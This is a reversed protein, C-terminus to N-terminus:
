ITLSPLLANIKDLTLIIEEPTTFRSLSFRLSSRALHPDIGMHLLTPSLQSVGSTCASGLSVAISAQDLQAFLAEGDLHPFALNTTNSLRPGTGNVHLNPFINRLGNELQNLLLAMKEAAAPLIDDLLELAKALGLIGPLNETGSRLNREQGGGLLLPDLPFDRSIFVFGTGQPAHFKHGSFAAASIGPPFDLKEKGPLAVGDLIFPINHTKALTAIERYPTKVGTVSNAGSLVILGIKEKLANAVQDPTVHGKEDVPLYIIPASLQKLPELVAPHELKTTLIAGSFRAKLILTNLGETGGSTFFIENPSKNIARAVIERAEALRARAKRGPTHNSSPNSPGEKLAQLVVELVKPDLQTTANNDLYIM